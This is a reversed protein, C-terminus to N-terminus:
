PFSKAAIQYTQRYIEKAKEKDIDAWANSIERLTKIKEGPGEISLADRIAQDLLRKTEEPRSSVSARAMQLLAKIKIEKSDVQALVEASKQPDYAFWAMAIEGLLRPSKERKAFQLTNELAKINEALDKRSMAEAMELLVRVNFISERFRPLMNLVESIEWDPQNMIIDALIKEGSFYGPLRSMLESEVKELVEKGKARDIFQWQRALQLLRQARLLRDQIRSAAALTKQFVEQGAKRNWKGFQAGVQLLAFSHPEPFEASIKEAVRLANEEDIAAWVSALASLLYSRERPDNIKEVEQLAKTFFPVARAEESRAKERGKGLHYVAMLAPQKLQGITAPSFKKIAQEAIKRYLDLRLSDDSIELVGKAAEILGSPTDEMAWVSAAEKLLLDRTERSSAERLRSLTKNKDLAAAERILQLLLKRNQPQDPLGMVQVVAKELIDLAQAPQEKKLSAAIEKLAGAKELPFNAPIAEAWELAKLPEIKAWLSIGEVKKRMRIVSPDIKELIHRARVEDFFKWSDAIKEIIGAKLPPLTIEGASKEALELLAARRGQGAHGWKKDLEILTSARFYPDSISSAAQYAQEYILNVKKVDRAMWQSIIETSARARFVELPISESLELAKRKDLAALRRIVQGLIESRQYPDDVQPIIKLAGAVELESMGKVVLSKIKQAEFSDIIRSTETLANKIHTLAKDRPIAPSRALNVLAYARAEPFEPTIEEAFLEAQEWDLAAWHVVMEQAALSRLLPPNFNKLRAMAREAWEKKEPSNVRVAAASILIFAKAQYFSSPPISEAVRWAEQLLSGNKGPHGLSLALNTLTLSKLFPDHLFSSIEVARNGDIGALAEALTKLERDRLSTDKIKQVELLVFAMAELGQRPNVQSWEEAVARHAWIGGEAKRIEERLDQVKEFDVGDRVAMTEDPWRDAIEKLDKVRDSKKRTDLAMQWALQFAKEAAEPEIKAWEGAMGSLIITAYFTEEMKSSWLRAVTLSQELQEQAPSKKAPEPPAYSCASAGLSGVIILKLLINKGMRQLKRYGVGLLFLLGLLILSSLGILWRRSSEGRRQWTRDYIKQLAARQGNSEQILQGVSTKQQGKLEVFSEATEAVKKRLSASNWGEGDMTNFNKNLSIIRSETFFAEESFSRIGPCPDLRAQYVSRSEAIFSPKFKQSHEKQFKQSHCELCYGATRASVSSAAPGCFLFICILLIKPWTRM